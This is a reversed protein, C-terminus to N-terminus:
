NEPSCDDDDDDDDDDDEDEDEDEDEDMMMMQLLFFSLIESMVTSSILSWKPEVM